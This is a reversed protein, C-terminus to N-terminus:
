GARHTEPAISWLEKLGIGFHQPGSDRDLDFDRILKKALSGRAGEGILVYKGRLEMGPSFNAKPQGDRSVGKDGTLVGVVKGHSDYIAAVAAFGPILDVGLAEAKAGLWRTLRGLSGVFHGGNRMSKPLLAHPLRLARRPTLVFFAEDTVETTLPRDKADRWGPLLRDLGIPDIVAGSLIHAGIEAGKEIVAVSREPARQKLRIAAALGAPGAGVVVVDFDVREREM